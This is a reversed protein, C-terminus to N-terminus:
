VIGLPTCYEFACRKVLDPMVTAMVGRRAGENFQKMTSLPTASAVAEPRHGRHPPYLLPPRNGTAWEQFRQPFARPLHNSAILWEFARWDAECAMGTINLRQNRASNKRHGRDVSDSESLIAM